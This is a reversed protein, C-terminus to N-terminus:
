LGLNRIAMESDRQTQSQICNEQNLIFNDLDELDFYLRRGRLKYTKLAKKHVYGYLTSLPLELYTAASEISIFPKQKAVVFKEIRDLKSNIEIISNNFDELNGM